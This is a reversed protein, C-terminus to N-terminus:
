GRDSGKQKLFTLTCALSKRLKRMLHVDKEPASFKKMKLVLIEKRLEIVRQALEASSMGNLEKKLESHM